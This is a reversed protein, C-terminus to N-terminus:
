QCLRSALMTSLLYHPFSVTCKTYYLLILYAYMNPVNRMNRHEIFIRILTGNGLVGIIFIIAFLVPVIYTEPRDRYPVYGDTENGNELGIESINTKNWYDLIAEMVASVNHSASNSFKKEEALEHILVADKTFDM